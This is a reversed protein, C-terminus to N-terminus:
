PPVLRTRDGPLLEALVAVNGLYLKREFVLMTRSNFRFVAWPEELPSGKYDRDSTDPGRRRVIKLRGQSQIGWLAFITTSGDDYWREGQVVYLTDNTEPVPAWWVVIDRIPTSPPLPGVRHFLNAIARRATTDVFETRFRALITERAAVGLSDRRLAAVPVSRGLALGVHRDGAYYFDPARPGDTVQGVLRLKAGGVESLVHVMAGAQVTLPASDPRLITWKSALGDPLFSEDGNVRRVASDTVVFAVTVIGDARLFGVPLSRSRTQGDLALTHLLTILLLANPTGM